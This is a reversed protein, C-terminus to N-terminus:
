ESRLYRVFLLPFRANYLVTLIGFLAAQDPLSGKLVSISAGSSDEEYRVMLGGLCEVWGSEVKGAIYIAYVGPNDYPFKM